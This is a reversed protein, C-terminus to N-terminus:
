DQDDGDASADWSASDPLTPHRPFTDILLGNNDHNRDGSIGKRIKSNEQKRPIYIADAFMGRASAPWRPRKRSQNRHVAECSQM